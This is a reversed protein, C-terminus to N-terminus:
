ALATLNSWNSFWYRIFEVRGFDTTLFKVVWFKTFIENPCVALLGQLCNVAQWTEIMMRSVGMVRKMELELSELRLDM